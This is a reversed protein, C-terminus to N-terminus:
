KATLNDSAIKLQYSKIEGKFHSANIKMVFREGDTQAVCDPPM